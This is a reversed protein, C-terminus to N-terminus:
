QGDKLEQLAREIADFRQSTEAQAMMHAHREILEFLDRAEELTVEGRCVAALVAQLAAAAEATTRIPPLDLTVITAPRLPPHLASMFHTLLKPNGGLAGELAKQLLEGAKGEPLAEALSTTRNKSGRPRGGPNGSQGKQFPLGRSKKEEVDGARASIMVGGSTAASTAGAALQEVKDDTDKAMFTSDQKFDPNIAPETVRAHVHGGSDLPSRQDPRPPTEPANPLATLDHELAVARQECTAVPPPDDGFPDHCGM